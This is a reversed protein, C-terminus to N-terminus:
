KVLELQGSIARKLTKVVREVDSESLGPHLPLTLERACFQETNPLSTGPFREQYYTFKHVPPYHISTQIGDCRLHDMIRERDVDEPLLVPMLHAATEHDPEFPVSVKPIDEAIAKRYFRTLERRRANFERLRELQVLGMAARLEDMRYNYGLMTVDYSYAHGRHRDLTLSTMGHSRMRRMTELVSDDRALVMGGEATTMNKNTFFSFAAADSMRGVEGVAPAHAADEILMLGHADAFARWRPLDVLYGGYHMVIVAKTKPTCSQEADDISIHPVEADQLDVFVPTAGAYLVANVSAVFTLSPVLVEDGSGIDLAKLCLHLGATCSNVAVAGNVNHLGAFAREFDGVRDGMTIWGSDIVSCLANKEEEGLVPDSLSIRLNRLNRPNGYNKSKDMPKAM